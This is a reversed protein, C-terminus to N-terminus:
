TKVRRGPEHRREGDRYTKFDLSAAATSFVAM